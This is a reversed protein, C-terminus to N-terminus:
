CARTTQATWCWPAAIGVVWAISWGSWSNVQGEAVQRNLIPAFATKIIEDAEAEHSDCVMYSSLGAAPRDQALQGAPNSTAVSMWIYDGHSSCIANFERAAAAHNAQVDELYAAQADIMADRDTGVMYNLRRWAGGVWHRAWGFTTIRGAAVQKQLLPRMVQTFITDTRAERSQDCRFYTAFV